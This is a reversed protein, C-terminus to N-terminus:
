TTFDVGTIKNAGLTYIVGQCSSPATEALRFVNPILVPTSTSAPIAISLGTLPFTNKSFHARFTAGDCSGSDTNTTTIDVNAVTTLTLPFPNPNTVTFQLSGTYVGAASPVLDGVLSGAATPAITPAVVSGAKGGGDGDASVLWAAVGVGVAILFLALVAATAKKKRTWFRDQM